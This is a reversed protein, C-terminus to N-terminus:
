RPSPPLLAITSRILSAHVVQGLALPVVQDIKYLEQARQRYLKQEVVIGLLIQTTEGLHTTGGYMRNHAVFYVPGGSNGPFVNFDFLFTKVSKAPTIPYSAIKGSRLVPFGADNGEAGFPFGLCLLEDGPAIELQELMEDTALFSDPLLNPVSGTPLNVYIAAVDVDPHKVWLRRGDKSLPLQIEARRWIGSEDKMRAVLTASPETIAELVHAATILVYFARKPDDPM